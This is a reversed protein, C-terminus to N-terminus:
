FVSNIPAEPIISIKKTNSQIADLYIFVSLV